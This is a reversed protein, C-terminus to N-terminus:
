PSVRLDVTARAEFGDRTARAADHVVEGPNGNATSYTRGVFQKVVSTQGDVLGLDWTLMEGTGCSGPCLGGDVSIISLEQPLVKNLV